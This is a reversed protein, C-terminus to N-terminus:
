QVNIRFGVQVDGGPLIDARLGERAETEWKERSFVAGLLYGVAAGILASSVIGRAQDRETMSDRFELGGPAAIV